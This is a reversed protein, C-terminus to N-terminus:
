QGKVREGSQMCGTLGRQLLYQGRQAAGLLQLAGHHHAAVLLLHSDPEGPRQM